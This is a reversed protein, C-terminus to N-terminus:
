PEETAAGSSEGEDGLPRFPCKWVLMGAVIISTGYISFVTGPATDLCPAVSFPIAFGGAYSAATAIAITTSAVEESIEPDSLLLPFFLSVGGALIGLMVILGLALVNEGASSVFPILTTAVGTAMITVVFYLRRAGFKDSLASWFFAGILFALTSFGLAANSSDAKWGWKQLAYPLAGSLGLYGGVYAAYALIYRIIATIHYRSVALPSGQAHPSPLRDQDFVTVVVVLCLGIAGWIMPVHQWGFTGALGQASSVGIAAGLAYSGFFASQATAAHRDSFLRAIRATMSALLLGTSLGFFALLVMFSWQTLALGRLLLSSSAVFASGAILGITGIRSAIWASFLAGPISALSIIAWSRQLFGIDWGERAMMPFLPPTSMYGGGIIAGHLLCALFLTFRQSSKAM